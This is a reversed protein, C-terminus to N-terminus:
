LIANIANVVSMEKSAEEMIEAQRGVQRYLTNNASQLSRVKENLRNVDDNLTATELEVNSVFGKVELLDNTISEIQTDDGIKAVASELVELCETANMLRSREDKKFSIM